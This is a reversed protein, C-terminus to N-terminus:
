DYADGLSVFSDELWYWRTGGSSILRELFESFSRAVITSSGAVAHCDWFSDYCRGLRGPALDITVYQEDNLGRCLIFWAASIDDEAQCGVLVPNAEVFDNPPVIEAVCTESQFLTVGGCM